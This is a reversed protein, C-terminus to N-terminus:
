GLIPLLVIFPGLAFGKKTQEIVFGPITVTATAQITGIGFVPFARVIKIGFIGPNLTEITGSRTLNGFM